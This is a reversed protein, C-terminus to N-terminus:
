KRLYFSAKLAVDEYRRRIKQYLGKWGEGRLLKRYINQTHDWLMQPLSVGQQWKEKPTVLEYDLEELLSGGEKEFARVQYDSMNKKWKFFNDRKVRGHIEANFRDCIARRDGEYEIFNIIREFADEPNQVLHEYRLEMYTEEPLTRGYDILTKARTAWHRAGQIPSKPGFDCRYLSLAVDRGDRIMHIFKADPFLEHLERAYISYDPTKGGWRISKKLYAWEAYWRRVVEAYTREALNDIFYDIDLDVLGKFRHGFEPIAVIDNMLKRINRDENLDGYYPLLRQIRVFHGNDRGFGISLYDHILRFMFSTGSRQSGVVFIPPSDKIARVAKEKESLKNSVAKSVTEQETM